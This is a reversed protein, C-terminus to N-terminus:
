VSRASSWTRSSCCRRKARLLPSAAITGVSSVLLTVHFDRENDTESGHNRVQDSSQFGRLRLAFVQLSADERELALQCPVSASHERASM